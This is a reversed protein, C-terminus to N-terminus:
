NATETFTVVYSSVTATISYTGATPPLTYTASAQGGGNTLPISNLFSGGAGGDSFTVTVGSVKNGYQDKVVVVLPKPLQTGPAATQNNGSSIAESAPAGAVSTEHFTAATATGSSATVAFGVHTSTPLTLTVSAEGNIGTNVTNSPSFTGGVSDSYTVPANAVMNGFSDKAQVVLPAPLVTGVTGSQSSGSIVTLSAATGAVATESLSATSYGSSSATLAYTGATEPLTYTVTATGTSDTIVPNQSFTGKNGSGFTVPVNPLVNGTYPDTAQVSLTIPTNVTASQNNGASPNIEPFLGYVKLATETGVYVKGNAVLPTAFHATAGLADRGSVDQTNYLEALTPSSPNFASLETVGGSSNTNRVLWLVGNETGNASLTPVGTLTYAESSEMVPTMSLMGNAMSFAKLKDQRAATYLYGNWYIPAGYMQGTAGVLDEVDKDFGNNYGGMATTNILYITGTKGEAVALSPSQTWEDNPLLVVGGSGLDLDGSDMIQQNYPTFYDPVSFAWTLTASNYTLQMQLVTDGWDLGGASSGDFYGNATALYINGNSDAAPGVGSMWISSGYTQDPSTNFVALQQITPQTSSGANYALLWGHAKQDCGNSGFGILINGNVELLGPRQLDWQEYTSLSVGDFSASIEVPAGYKEAGSTIDLAHLNFYFSNKTGTTYTKAVLYMTNTSLDIVPTGVIGVQTYGNSGCGLLSIPEPSNGDLLSVWWLQAGTDANFAYVSDNLTAVYVVNVTGVDPINVGSVYLPQAAVYGDVAKSFLNGFQNSNVNAPTLYTESSSLGDRTTDSRQTLVSHQARASGACLIVAALAITVARFGAWTCRTQPASIKAAHLQPRSFAHSATVKM